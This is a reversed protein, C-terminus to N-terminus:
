LKARLMKSEAEEKLMKAVGPDTEFPTWLGVGDSSAHTDVRSGNREMNVQMISEFFDSAAADAWSTSGFHSDTEPPSEQWGLHGGCRTEVILVNPNSVLYALKSRSPESVLFDDRATLFIYPVSIHRVLRYSSSDKWYADGDKYGIRDAHPYFAQNRQLHPAVAHDFKAITSSLLATRFASQFASDTMQKFSKWHSLVMKKVGLGMVVNFPFDVVESNISIPNGLSAAGSVCAPLTGSLGEEGLYKTLIAAGLSNGVLFLPVDKSLRASVHYVLNRLDGTYAANYGRPTTMEIGGCGRMNMSAANWGRNSFSRALSRMYGFSADNNIGHILIVVPDLIPGELIENRLEDTSKTSRQQGDVPIEWDIAVKAGGQTMTIIERFRLHKETSSPGGLLYAATSSIKGRTGVFLSPQISRTLISGATESMKSYIGAMASGPAIQGMTVPPKTLKRQVDIEYGLTCAALISSLIAWGSPTKPLAEQVSSSRRIIQDSMRRSLRRIRGGGEKDHPDAAGYQQLRYLAEEDLDELSEFDDDAAVDAITEDEKSDHYESVLTVDDESINSWMSTKSKISDGCDTDSDESEM